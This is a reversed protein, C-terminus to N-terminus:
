QILFLLLEEKMKNKIIAMFKFIEIKPITDSEEAM